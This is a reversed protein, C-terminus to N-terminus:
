HDALLYYLFHLLAMKGSDNSAGHRLIRRGDALLLQGDEVLSKLVTVVELPAKDAEDIVLARGHMVARVLPSDKWVIRGDEVSPSLTLQGITSDRHLQIYEREFNALQCIRDCIKNKGAAVNRFLSISDSFGLM